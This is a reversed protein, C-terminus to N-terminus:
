AGARAAVEAQVIATAAVKDKVPGGNLQEALKKLKFWHLEAWEDPIEVPPPVIVPGVQSAEIDAPSAEGIFGENALGEIVSDDIDVIDGVTLSLHTRCDPAYAFAKLVKVLM